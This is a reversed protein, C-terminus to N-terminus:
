WTKENHLIRRVAVFVLISILLWPIICYVNLQRIACSISHLKSLSCAVIVKHKQILTDRGLKYLLFDMSPKYHALTYDYDFGYVNVEKLDLENCAFVARKNVDPPLKKAIVFFLVIIKHNVKYDSAM